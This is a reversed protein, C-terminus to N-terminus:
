TGVNPRDTGAQSGREEPVDELDFDTRGARPLRETM